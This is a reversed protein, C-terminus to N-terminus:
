KVDCLTYGGKYYFYDTPKGAATLRSTECPAGIPARLGKIEAGQTGDDKRAYVPRDLATGSKRVTIVPRNKADVVALLAKEDATCERSVNAQAEIGLWATLKEWTSFKTAMFSNLWKTLNAPNGCFHETRIQHPLHCYGVAVAASGEVDWGLSIIPNGPCLYKYPVYPTSVPPATTVPISDKRFYGTDTLVRTFDATGGWHVPKPNSCTFGSSTGDCWTVPDSSVMASVPKKTACNASTCVDAKAAKYAFFAAAGLVFIVPIFRIRFRSM